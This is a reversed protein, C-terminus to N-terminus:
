RNALASIWGCDPRGVLQCVEEHVADQDDVASEVAGAGEAVVHRAAQDDSPLVSALLVAMACLGAVGVGNKMVVGQACVGARGGRDLRWGM